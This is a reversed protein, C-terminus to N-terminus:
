RDRESSALQAAGVNRPPPAGRAADEGNPPRGPRACEYARRASAAAAVWRPGAGGRPAAADRQVDRRRAPGPRRDARGARAARLAGASRRSIREAEPAPPAVVR